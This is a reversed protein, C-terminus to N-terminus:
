RGKFIFGISNKAILIDLIFLFSFFQETIPHFLLLKAGNNDFILNESNDLLM